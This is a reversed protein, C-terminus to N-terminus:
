SELKWPGASPGQLLGVDQKAESGMLATATQSSDQDTEAVEDM